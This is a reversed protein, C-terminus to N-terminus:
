QQKDESTGPLDIIFKAGGGFKSDVELSGNLVKITDRVTLLGLGTGGPLASYTEGHRIFELVPRPLGPGDDIVQLRVYGDRNPTPGIGISITGVRGSNRIANLANTMLNYLVLLLQTSRGWVKYIADEELVQFEITEDGYPMVNMARLAITRLHVGKKDESSKKSPTGKMQELLEQMLDNLARLGELRKHLHKARKKSFATEQLEEEISELEYVVNRVVNKGDHLINRVGRADQVYRIEQLLQDYDERVEYFHKAQALAISAHEALTTLIEVTGLTFQDLEKGDVTLVGDCVFQDVTEQHMLPVAVKSVTDKFITHYLTHPEKSVNGSLYFKHTNFVHGTMGRDVPSSKEPFRDAGDRSFLAKFELVSKNSDFLKIYARDARCLFGAENIATLTADLRRGYVLSEAVRRLAQQIEKVHPVVLADITDQEKDWSFSCLMDQSSGDPLRMPVTVNLLEHDQAALLASKVSHPDAFSGFGTGYLEHANRGIVDSGLIGEAASNALIIRGQSDSRLFPLPLHALTRAFDPKKRGASINTSRRRNAM